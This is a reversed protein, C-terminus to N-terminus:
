NKNADSKLPHSIEKQKRAEVIPLFPGYKHQEETFDDAYPGFPHDVPKTSIDPWDSTIKKVPRPQSNVFAAVDWAEEDSLQPTEFTSGQPMNFKIYTAFRSLRHLGAASTYSHEGWLPPYCYNENDLNLKGEGNKQHCSICKNEFVIKGKEPDAARNLYPLKGLGIGKQNTPNSVNKGVWLIYTALAHMERSNTDLSPANLSREFCDNIRKYVTEVTGSRARFRPYTSAVAAYNNGYPKTGADLHCNQCNMGNSQTHLKGEPGYYLATSVILNRGYRLLEQDKEEQWFLTDPPTWVTKQPNTKKIKRQPNRNKDSFYL